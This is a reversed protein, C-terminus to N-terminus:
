LFLHYQEKLGNGDAIYSYFRPYDCISVTAYLHKIIIVIIIRKATM